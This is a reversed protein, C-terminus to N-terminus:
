MTLYISVIPECPYRRTSRINQLLLSHSFDLTSVDDSDDYWSVPYGLSKFGLYFGNHIYSHTHSHLKHGWIVIQKIEM